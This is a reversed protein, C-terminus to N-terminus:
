LAQRSATASMIASGRVLTFYWFRNGSSVPQHAGGGELDGRRRADHEAGAGDRLHRPDRAREPRPGQQHRAARRRAGVREDGREDGCPQRGRAEGDRALRRHRQDACGDGVRAGGAAVLHDGEAAAAREVRALRDGRQEAVAAVREVVELDHRASSRGPRGKM